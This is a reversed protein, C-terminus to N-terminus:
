KQSQIYYDEPMSIMNRKGRQTLPTLQSYNWWLWHCHVETFSNLDQINWHVIFSPTCLKEAQITEEGNGGQSM